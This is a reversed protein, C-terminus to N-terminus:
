KMYQVEKVKKHIRTHTCLMCIHTCRFTDTPPHTYCSYTHTHTYTHTCPLHTYPHTHIHSHIHIHSRKDSHLHVYTGSQITHTLTPTPPPQLCVLGAVCHHTMTSTVVKGRRGVVLGQIELFCAPCLFPMHAVLAGVAEQKNDM